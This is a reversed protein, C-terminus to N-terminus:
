CRYVDFLSLLSSPPNNVQYRTFVASPISTIKNTCAHSLNTPPHLPALEKQEKGVAVRFTIPLSYIHCLLFLSSTKTLETPTAALLGTMMRGWEEQVDIAPLLYSHHSGCSQTAVLRM